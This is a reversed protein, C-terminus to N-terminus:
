FNIGSIEIELDPNEMYKNFDTVPKGTTADKIIISPNTNTAKM